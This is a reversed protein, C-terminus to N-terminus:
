KVRLAIRGRLTKCANRTDRMGIYRDFIVDRILRIISLLYLTSRKLKWNADLPLILGVQNVAIDILRRGFSILLYTAYTLTNGVTGPYTMKTYRKSRNRQICDLSWM